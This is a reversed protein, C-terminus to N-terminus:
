ILLPLSACAGHLLSGSGLSFFPLTVPSGYVSLSVPGEVPVGVGSRRRGGPTLIPGGSGPGPWSSQQHSDTIAADVPQLLMEGLIAGTM